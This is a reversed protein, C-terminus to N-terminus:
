AIKENAGWKAMYSDLQEKGAGTNYDLGQSNLFTQQNSLLRENASRANNAYDAKQLAMQDGYYNQMFKQNKANMWTGFGSIGTNLAGLAFGGAGKMDFMSNGTATPDIYGDPAGLKMGDPLQTFGGLTNPTGFLDTTSPATYMSSIDPLNGMGVKKLNFMAYPDYNTEGM